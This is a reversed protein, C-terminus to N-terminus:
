LSMTLRKTQKKNVNLIEVDGIDVIQDIVDILFDPNLKGDHIDSFNVSKLGIIHPPLEESPRVSTTGAFQIKYPHSTTRFRGGNHTVTFNGIIKCEGEEISNEFKKILEKRVTAHMTENKEDIFVMELTPVGNLFQKWLKIIKVHVRDM